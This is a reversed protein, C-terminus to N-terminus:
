QAAPKNPESTASKDSAMAAGPAKLERSVSVDNGDAEGEPQRPAKAVPVPPSITAATTAAFADAQGYGFLDDKGPPGLDRATTTLIARVENPKLTPNRELLLAV